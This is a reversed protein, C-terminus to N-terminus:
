QCPETGMKASPPPPPPRRPKLLPAGGDSADSRPPAPGPTPHQPPLPQTTALGGAGNGHEADEAELWGASRLSSALAAPLSAGGADTCDRVAAATIRAASPAAVGGDPTGGRGPLSSADDDQQFSYAAGAARGGGDGRATADHVAAAMRRQSALVLSAMVARPVSAALRAKLAEFYAAGDSAMLRVIEADDGSEGGASQDEAKRLAPAVVARAARRDRFFQPDILAAEGDLIGEVAANAEGAWTAMADHTAASLSRRHAATAVAPLLANRHRLSSDSRASGGGRESCADTLAASAINGLVAHTSAVSALCAPLCADVAEEILCRMSNDPAILYPQLGDARRLVSAVRAESFLTAAAPLNIVSLCRLVFSGQANLRAIYSEGFARCLAYSPSSPTPKAFHTNCQKDEAAGAADLKHLLRTVRSPSLYVDM